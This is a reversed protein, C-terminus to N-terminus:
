TIRIFKLHKRQKYSMYIIRLHRHSYHSIKFIQQCYVHKLYKRLTRFGIHLNDSLSNWHHIKICKKYYFVLTCCTRVCKDMYM